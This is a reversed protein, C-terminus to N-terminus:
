ESVKYGEGGFYVYGNAYGYADNLLYFNNKQVNDVVIKGTRDFVTWYGPYTETDLFEITEEGIVQHLALTYGGGIPMADTYENLKKILKGSYDYLETFTWGYKGDKTPVGKENVNTYYNNVIIGDKWLLGFNDSYYFRDSKAPIIAKGQKNMIGGPAHMVMGKATVSGEGLYKFFCTMGDKYNFTSLSYVCDGGYQYPIVLKGKTNIYGIKNVVVGHYTGQYKLVAARGDQFHCADDFKFPIVEKGKTNIFGYKLDYNLKKGSKMVVVSSKGPESEIYDVVDGNMIARTVEDGYVGVRVLGDYVVSDSAAPEYKFPTILKGKTNIYANADKTSNYVKAIGQSFREARSFQAKIVINGGQDKYGVLGNETYTTWREGTPDPTTMTPIFRFEAHNPANLYEHTWIIVPTGDANKENSANVVMKAAEPPRLSFIDSKEDGFNAGESYILWTYPDKVAKVRLGNKRTGEIGLYRGDKMKLTYQGDGMNSVYFAENEALKRLEADGETTLNLYNNMCRLYYWDNFITKAVDGAAFVTTPPLVIMMCLILLISM